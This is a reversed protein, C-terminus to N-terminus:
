RIMMLNSRVREPAITHQVILYPKGLMADSPM